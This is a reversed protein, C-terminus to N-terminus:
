MSVTAVPMAVYGSHGKTVEQVRRIIKDVLGAPLREREAESTPQWPFYSITSPLRFLTEAEEIPPLM